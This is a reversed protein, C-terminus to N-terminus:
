LSLSDIRMGDSLVEYATASKYYYPKSAKKKKWIVVGAVVILVAGLVGGIVAGVITGVAASGSSSSSLALMPHESISTSLPEGSTPLGGTSKTLEHPPIPEVLYYDLYLTAGENINEVVLTHYSADLGYFYALMENYSTENKTDAVATSVYRNDLTYRYVPQDHDETSEIVGFLWM